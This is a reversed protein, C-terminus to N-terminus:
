FMDALFPAAAPIAREWQAIAGKDGTLKGIAALMAPRQCGIMMTSFTQIDCAITGGELTREDGRVVAAGDEDGAISITWTGRNWEAHEDSLRVTLRGTELAASRDDPPAFRYQKLMAEVDVIRFMFKPHLEIRADPPEQMRFLFPDDSPAIFRVRDAASDHYGIFRWLGGGAEESLHVFEHISLLRDKVEYIVYGAPLGDGSYYVALDGPKRRAIQGNWWEEDRVLMGNYRRAYAEYVEGAIRWDSREMRRITGQEAAASWEPLDQIGVTFVKESSFSGWGYKRYFRYSFPNLMSVSQGNARMEELSRVMLKGVMGKRRLEPYSAVRAIGGMALRVGQVYVSLPMIELQAGLKGDVFYGLYQETKTRTRAKELEQETYRTSFATQTLALIQDVEQPAVMRIM